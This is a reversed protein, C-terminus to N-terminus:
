QKDVDFSDGERTKHRTFFDKIKRAMQNFTSLLMGKKSYQKIDTETRITESEIIQEMYEEPHELMYKDNQKGIIQNVKNNKEREAKRNQLKSKISEGRVLMNNKVKYSHLLEDSCVLGDNSHTHIDKYCPNKEFKVIKDDEFEISGFIYEPLLQTQFEGAIVIGGQEATNDLQRLIPKSKGKEYEIATNPIKAVICRADRRDDRRSGDLYELKYNWADKITRLLTMSGTIKSNPYSSMTDDNLRNGGRIELGQKFVEDMKAKRTRHIFITYDPNSNEKVLMDGIEKPIVHHLEKCCERIHKNKLLDKSLMTRVDFYEM